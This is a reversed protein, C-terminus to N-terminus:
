YPFSLQNQEELLAKQQFEQQLQAVEPDNAYSWNKNLEEEEINYKISAKDSAFTKKVLLAAEPSFEKLEKISFLDFCEIQYRHYATAHEKTIDRQSPGSLQNKLNDILFINMVLVTPDEKGMREAENDYFKRDVSMDRLVENLADDYLKDRYATGKLIESTYEAHNDILKRRKERNEKLHAIYKTKMLEIASSMIAVISPKSIHGSPKELAIANKANNVKHWYKEDKLFSESPSASKPRIGPHAGSAVPTHKKRLDKESYCSYAWYGLAAVGGAVVCCTAAKHKKVFDM